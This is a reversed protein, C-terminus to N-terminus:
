SKFHRLKVPFSDVEMNFGLRVRSLFRFSFDIASFAETVLQRLEGMRCKEVRLQQMVRRLLKLCLRSSELFDSWFLRAHFRVVFTYSEVDLRKFNHRLFVLASDLISAM